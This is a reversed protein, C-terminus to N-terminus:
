SDLDPDENIKEIELYRTTKGGQPTVFNATGDAIMQEAEKKTRWLVQDGNFTVLVNRPKPEHPTPLHRRIWSIVDVM